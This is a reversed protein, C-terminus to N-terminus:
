AGSFHRDWARIEQALPQGAETFRGNELLTHAADRNNAIVDAYRREFSPDRSLPHKAEIMKEYLRAVPLFAHVALLVGHLPRPDPRVPSSFLPSFANDLIRERELLANLKNHSMEHILAEAMTMRQPHLSLYVTGIAEQYSASLHRHDYYGVPVIQQVYLGLEQRIEPLHHGILELAGALSDLWEGVPRDGLSLANGEKDPHAEELALPNNDFLALVIEGDVVHYPFSFPAGEEDGLAFTRELSGTALTVEHNALVLETADEPVDLVFRGSLCPVRAPAICGLPAELAGARALELGFTCTLADVMATAAVDGPSRVRLSRILVGVTPRRLASFVAGPDERLARAVAGRLAVFAHRGPGPAALGADLGRFDDLLAGLARSLVERASTSGEDPITLDRYGSV